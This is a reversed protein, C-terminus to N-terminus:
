NNPQSRVVIVQPQNEAIALSAQKFAIMADIFHRKASVTMKM